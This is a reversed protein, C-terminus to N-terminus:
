LDRLLAFADRAKRVKESAVALQSQLQHVREELYPANNLQTAFEGALKKWKNKEALASALSESQRLSNATLRRVQEELKPGKDSYAGPQKSM